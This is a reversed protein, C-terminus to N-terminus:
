LFAIGVCFIFFVIKGKEIQVKAILSAKGLLYNQDVSRKQFLPYIRDLASQICEVYTYYYGAPKSQPSRKDRTM